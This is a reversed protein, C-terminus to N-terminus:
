GVIAFLSFSDGHQFLLKDGLARDAEQLFGDFSAEPDAM